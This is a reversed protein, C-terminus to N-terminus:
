SGRNVVLVLEGHAVRIKAPTREVVNSISDQLGLELRRDRLPYRLNETTVGDAPGGVAFFSVITGPPEELIEEGRSLWARMLDDELVLRVRNRYRHLLSLNGLVHDLRGASAGLLTIEEYSGRALAWEVAKEADTRESDPDRVVPVDRFAALTEPDTSDIDGVIAHPTAGYRLATNAGGDACVFLASRAVAGNLTERSPPFGNALIVAKPM